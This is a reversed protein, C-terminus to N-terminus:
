LAIEESKAELADLFLKIIRGREPQPVTAWKKQASKANTIITDIEEATNESHYAVTEKPNAPNKIEISMHKETTILNLLRLHPTLNILIQLKVFPMEM